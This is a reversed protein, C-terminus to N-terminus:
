RSRRLNRVVGRRNGGTKTGIMTNLKAVSERLDQENVIDYRDFVARTKHGTGAQMALVFMRKLIALERNIEGVSVPRRLEPQEETAKRTRISESQRKGIYNRIDPTTITAMRRGGFYPTLHLRLRREVWDISKRGNVRYETLLDAAAEDFRVRDARPAIPAGREVDGLRRRLFARAVSEKDTEASERVWQQATATHTGYTLTWITQVFRVDSM